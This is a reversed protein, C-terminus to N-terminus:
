IIGRLKKLAKEANRSIYSDEEQVTEPVQRMDGNQRYTKDDPMSIIKAKKHSQGGVMLEIGGTVPNFGKMQDNIQELPINAEELRKQDEKLQHKQMRIHKELAELSVGRSAIQLLEQSYAECLKRGKSDFVYIVSVDDPDYKIDVKRKIYDCLEDSRYTMGWRKIGVNYVTVRESKMMLMTAYSKPPVAKEYREANIFCDFPTCHDEKQKKLGQHVSHMYIDTLWEHWKAYFEEITLLEGRALMGKIDKSVKGSTQSGTLTGTYSRFWRTFKNCVTRFFREIQGKSWPEYPLARHDDKIGISKYFGKAVDDFAFEIEEKGGRDNRARGTMEESTYDKGNDIYIYEPVGGIESESYLMKFLSQKLIASNADKCLVDGMIARSRMDVWAVLKPKIASIKGNPQKYSVWCDFTHEDGMVIQMVQLGKTDREAKVMIKNKYERTGKSALFWANAMKEDEMLYTIYRAVSPYSPIREWGNLNAVAQLKEYLMERTGMNAAFDPNFWINKIVQKTEPTFSPFRGTEKPKRCLALVKIFEFNGGHKKTLKDAWASAELYTKVYRYLTRAGKSLRQQSYEEAFITKDTGDYKLFERVINGIEMGKYYATKYNEMYWDLDTTTYWPEEGGCQFTELAGEDKLKQREKYANRASKSLSTLAVLKRDKGGASVKESRIEYQTINRKIKQVLTNYKVGELEAAEELTVFVEHM